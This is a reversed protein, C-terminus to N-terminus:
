PAEGTAGDFAADPVFYEQEHILTQMIQARLVETVQEVAVHWCPSKPRSALQEETSGHHPGGDSFTCEWISSWGEPICEWQPDTCAGAKCMKLTDNSVRRNTSYKLQSNM